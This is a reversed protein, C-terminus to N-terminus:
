KGISIKLTKGNADKIVYVGKGLSSLAETYSDFSAVVKGDIGYVLVTSEFSAVVTEVAAPGDYHDIFEMTELTSLPILLDTNNFALNEGYVSIELNNTEVTFVEGSASTFKLTSYGEAFSVSTLVSVVAMLGSVILKKM